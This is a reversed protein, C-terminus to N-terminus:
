FVRARRFRWADCRQCERAERDHASWKGPAGVFARSLVGHLGCVARVSGKVMSVGDRKRIRVSVRVRVFILRTNRDSCTRAFDLKLGVCGACLVRCM